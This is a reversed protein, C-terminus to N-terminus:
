SIQPPVYYALSAGEVRKVAEGRLKTLKPGLAAIEEALVDIMFSDSLGFHGILGMMGKMQLTLDNMAAGLSRLLHRVAARGNIVPFRKSPDLCALLPTLLVAPSVEVMAGPSEIRPLKDLTTAITLRTGDDRVGLALTDLVITRLAKAHRRCWDLSSARWVNRFNVFGTHQRSALRV